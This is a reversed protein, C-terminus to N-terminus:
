ADASSISADHLENQLRPNIGGTTPAMPDARGAGAVVPSNLNHDTRGTMNGAGQLDDRVINLKDVVVSAGQSSVLNSPLDAFAKSITTVTVGEARMDRLFQQGAEISAPM